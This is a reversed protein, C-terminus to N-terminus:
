LCCRDIPNIIAGDEQGQLFIRIMFSSHLITEINHVVLYERRDFVEKLLTYDCVIHHQDVSLQESKTDPQSTTARHIWDVITERYIAYVHHWSGTGM